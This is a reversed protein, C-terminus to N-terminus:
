RGGGLRGGEEKGGERERCVERKGREWGVEREWGGERKKVERGRGM